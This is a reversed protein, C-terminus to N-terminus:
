CLYALGIWQIHSSVTKSELSYVTSGTLARPTPFLTLYVVCQVATPSNLAVEPWLLGQLVVHKGAPPAASRLSGVLQGHM